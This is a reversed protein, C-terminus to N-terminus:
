LYRVFWEKALHAAAELTGKEEFLHTAGAVIHLKKEAKIQKLASENLKLVEYDESGVILLTPAQVMKLFSGALDPRGGRSVVAKVLQPEQAAAVLAAAAGTSAGFYGINLNKSTEQLNVWNTVEKLRSALLEIDFRLHADRRDRTEEEQTLLDFLLTAIEADQLMRAVAQNRSSLRSSGSGHVFLVISQAGKPIELIAAFSLAGLRILVDM